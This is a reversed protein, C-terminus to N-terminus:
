PGSSVGWMLIIGAFIAPPGGCGGGFGGLGPRETHEFGRFQRETLDYYGEHHAVEARYVHGNSDDIETASIVHVPFPLPNSWAQGAAADAQAQKTSTSYEIRTLGGLGNDIQTLLHAKPDAGLYRGWM